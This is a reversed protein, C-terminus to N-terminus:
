RREGADDALHERAAVVVGGLLQQAVERDTGRAARGRRGLEPRSQDRVLQVDESDGPGAQDHM